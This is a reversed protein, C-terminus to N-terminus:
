LFKIYIYYLYFTFSVDLSGFRSTSFPTKMAEDVLETCHLLVPVISDGLTLM